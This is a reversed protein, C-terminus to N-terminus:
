TMAASDHYISFPFSSVHHLIVRVKRTRNIYLSDKISKLIARKSPINPITHDRPLNAINEKGKWKM